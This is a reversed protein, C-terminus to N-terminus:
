SSTAVPTIPHLYFSKPQTKGGRLSLIPLSNPMIELKVLSKLTSEPMQALLNPNELLLLDFVPNKLLEEPFETGLELLTERPTNPNSAVIRALKVNQEALERLREPSTTELSAEKEATPPKAAKRHAM